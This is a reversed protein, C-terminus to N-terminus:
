YSGRGNLMVQLTRWVYVLDTTLSWNEVYYLDLRVSDDWSLDARGGVQWPGTLGPRVLFRRQVHSPYREVEARLPPRPGVISMDGKLVNIFQPLEDLSHRRLFRGVRTVRPDQRIKFLMGQDSENLSEVDALLEEADRLMSRFKLMEFPAGGLGIREQRFFVPGPSSLKIALAILLMLPSLLVLALLSACRDFFAKLFAKGGDYEPIEIHMLPLGAISRTHIRPGVVDLLSPSVAMEVDLGELSWSLERVVSPGMDDGGTVIVVDVDSSHVVSVVDELSGLRALEPPGKAEPASDEGVPPYCAGVIRYGAHPFRRNFQDAIYEASARNGVVLARASMRGERRQSMLWRRWSWRSLVLGAIGLGFATIIYGRAIDLKFLFAVIVVVSFLYVGVNVVRAYEATGIGVVRSSRSGSVGLWVVWAVAIAVSLVIYPIQWGALQSSSIIAILGGRLATGTWLFQAVIVSAAVIVLDSIALQLAHFRSWDTQRPRGTNETLKTDVNTEAM